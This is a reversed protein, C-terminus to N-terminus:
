ASLGILPEDILAAVIPKGLPWLWRPLYMGLLLDRTANAIQANSPAYHFHEREYAINFQEFQELTTPLSQINM